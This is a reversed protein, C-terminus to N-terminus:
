LTVENLHNTHHTVRLSVTLTDMGGRERKTECDSHVHNSKTVVGFATTKVSCKETPSEAPFDAICTPAEGAEVRPLKKNNRAWSLAKPSVCFLSYLQRSSAYSHNLGLWDANQAYFVM